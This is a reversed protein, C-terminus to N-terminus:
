GSLLYLRLSSVSREMAGRGGEFMLACSVVRIGVDGILQRSIFSLSLVFENM